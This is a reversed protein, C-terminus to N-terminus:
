MYKNGVSDGSCGFSYTASFAVHEGTIPAHMFVAKTVDYVHISKGCVTTTVDDTKGCVQPTATTRISDLIIDVFNDCMPYLSFSSGTMTNNSCLQNSMNLFGKGINLNTIFFSQM